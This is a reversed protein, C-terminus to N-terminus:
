NNLKKELVISKPFLINNELHIHTHLDDEFEKLLAFTVRYTNCADDPATYNSSLAAIERFREGEDQHEDMMKQIPNEVTGFNPKEVSAGNIEAKVLKKIYPFLMLEERKMHMTFEGSSTQFLANIKFLEPHKQGHVSCIKDLYQKLIPLQKEVYRHHKKEVYDALLDLSWSTFDIAGNNVTKLAENLESIIGEPVIGKESCVADITRNGNCCFDIEHSKFVGAARYDEAVLEGINSKESINM